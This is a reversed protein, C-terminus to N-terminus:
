QTDAQLQRQLELMPRQDVSLWGQAPQDLDRILWLVASFTLVLALTAYLSRQGSLGFQFGVGAMTLISVFALVGWVILPIRYQLGVVIRKTHLDIVENLSAIFLADIESSRDAQALAEAHSWLRKQLTESRALSDRFAAPDGAATSIGARIEVYERLLGQVQEGQPEPLLGARLYTTGIANVEDLLLAKRADFRAATLGFTFALIFALLGLTAAVVNGVPGQEEHETARRRRAGMQVGIEIASFAIMAALPFWAWVPVSDLWHDLPM